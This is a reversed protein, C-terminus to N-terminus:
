KIFRIADDDACEPYIYSFPSSLFFTPQLINTQRGPTYTPFSVSIKNLSFGNTPKQYNNKIKEVNKRFHNTIKPLVYRLTSTPPRFFLKDSGGGWGGEPPISPILPMFNESVVIKSQFKYPNQLDRDNEFFKSYRRSIKEITNNIYFVDKKKSIYSKSIQKPSKMIM